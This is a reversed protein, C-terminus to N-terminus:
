FMNEFIGGEASVCRAEGNYVAPAAQKLQRQSNRIGDAWGFYSRVIRRADLSERKTGNRENV